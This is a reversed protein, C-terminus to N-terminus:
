QQPQRPGPQAEIGLLQLDFILTSHPPIADGFGDPGYALEAPIFLRWQDGVKMKQLAETWGPIVQNVPFTAPPGGQTSDFVSGDILRGTYHTRVVDTAAPSAGAGQKLVQYQLGSPTVQVGQQTANQKLFEVNRKQLIAIRKQALQQMAAALAEQSYEPQVGGLGDQVGSVLANVDLGIQDARFSAGLDYGIAYSHAAPAAPPRAAGGGGQPM